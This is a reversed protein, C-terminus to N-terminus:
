IKKLIRKKFVPNMLLQRRAGKITFGEIEILRIIEFILQMDHFDYQRDGKSSTKNVKFPFESEWFRLKSAPLGLMKTVVNIQWRIRGELYQHVLEGRLKNMKEEWDITEM